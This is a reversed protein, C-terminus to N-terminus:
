GSRHLGYENGTVHCNTRVLSHLGFCNTEVLMIKTSIAFLEETTTYKQTNYETGTERDESFYRFCIRSVANRSSDYKRSFLLAM